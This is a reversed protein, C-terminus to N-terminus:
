IGSRADTKSPLRGEGATTKQMAKFQIMKRKLSRCSIYSQVLFKIKNIILYVNECKVVNNSLTRLLSTLIKKM